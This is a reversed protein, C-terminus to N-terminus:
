GNNSRENAISQVVSSGGTVQIGNTFESVDKECGVEEQIVSIIETSNLAAAMTNSHIPTKNTNSKLFNNKALFSTTSSSFEIPKGSNGYHVKKENLKKLKKAQKDEEKKKLNETRSYDIKRLEEVSYHRNQLYYRGLVLILSTLSFLGAYIAIRDREDNKKAQEADEIKELNESELAAKVDITSTTTSTTVGDTTTTSTSTSTTTTTVTTTTTTTTSTTTTTTTSKKTGMTEPVGAGGM